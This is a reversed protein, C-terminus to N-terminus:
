MPLSKGSTVVFSTKMRKKRERETENEVEREKVCERESVCASVRVKERERGKENLVLLTTKLDM